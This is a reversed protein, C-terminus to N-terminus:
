PAPPFDLEPQAVHNFWNAYTNLAVHAVVEAIDRDGLGAARAAALDDDSVRGQDAVVREAYACCAPRGSTTPAAREIASWSTPTSACRRAGSTTPPSATTAATPPPSPLALQERVRVGFTGNALAERFDFTAQLAAPSAVM